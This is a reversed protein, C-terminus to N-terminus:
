QAVPGLIRLLGRLMRVHESSFGPTGADMEERLLKVMASAGNGPKWDAGSGTGGEVALDAGAAAIPLDPSVPTSALDIIKSAVWLQVSQLADNVDNGEGEPLALARARFQELDPLQDLGVVMSRQALAAGVARAVHERDMFVM